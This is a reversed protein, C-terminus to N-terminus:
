PQLFNSIIISGECSFLCIICHLSYRIVGEIPQKLITINYFLILLELQLHRTFIKLPSHINV